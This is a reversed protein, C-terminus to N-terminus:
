YTEMSPDIKIAWEHIGGALNTVAYGKKGLIQCAKGSRGGHHILPAIKHQEIHALRMLQVNAPKICEHVDGKAFYVRARSFKGSVSVNNDRAM